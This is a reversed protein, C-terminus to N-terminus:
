RLNLAAVAVMVVGMAALLLSVLDGSAAYEWGGWVAVGGFFALQWSRANTADRLVGAFLLGTLYAGFLATVLDDGTQVAFALGILSLAFLVGALGKAALGVLRDRGM